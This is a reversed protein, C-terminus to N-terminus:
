ECSWYQTGDITEVIESNQYERYQEGCVLQPTGYTINGDHDVMVLECMGCEECSPMAMAAIIVFGAIIHLVRKKM